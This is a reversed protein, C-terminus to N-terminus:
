FRVNPLDEFLTEKVTSNMMLDPSTRLHLLQSYGEKSPPQLSEVSFGMNAM